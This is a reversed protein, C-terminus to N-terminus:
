SARAQRHEHARMVVLRLDPRTDPIAQLALSYDDDASNTVGNSRSDSSGSRPLTPRDTAAEVVATVIEELDDYEQGNEAALRLFTEVDDPHILSDIMHRLARLGGAADEPDIDHEVLLSFQGFMPNVRITEGFYDFTLEPRERRQGFSGLNRSTV